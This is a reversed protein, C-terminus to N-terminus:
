FEVPIARHNKDGNNEKPNLTTKFVNGYHWLVTDFSQEITKSWYILAQLFQNKQYIVWILKIFLYFITIEAFDIDIIYDFEKFLEIKM